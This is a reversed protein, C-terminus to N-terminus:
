TETEQTGITTGRYVSVAPFQLDHQWAQNTPTTQPYDNGLERKPNRIQQAAVWTNALAPAKMIAVAKMDTKHATHGNGHRM